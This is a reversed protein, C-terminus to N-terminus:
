DGQCCRRWCPEIAGDNAYKTDVDCWSWTAEAAGDGAHSSLSMAGHGVDDRYHWRGCSEAAVGHWSWTAEVAGDGVHSPPKVHLEGVLWEVRLNV